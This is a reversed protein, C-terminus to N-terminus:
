RAHRPCNRRRHRRMPHAVPSSRLSLRRNLPRARRPGPQGVAYFVTQLRKVFYGVIDHYDAAKHIEEICESPELVSHYTVTSYFIDEWDSSGFVRTLRNRWAQPPKGKRVLMRNIASYPFLIWVDAAKTDALAKIAKWEVSTGFPDLFVVAREKTADLKKCWNLIATNADDNVIVIEKDTFEEALAALEKCKRPSKEIFVYKDFPPHVELARRASGKRLEEEAESLGPILKAFGGLAPRRLTGTGAFADVYSIKYFKAKPNKEFIKTYARLYKSLVRLKEQTWAGGFQSQKTM